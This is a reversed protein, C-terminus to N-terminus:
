KTRWSSVELVAYVLLMVSAGFRVGRSNLFTSSGFCGCQGDEAIAAHIGFGIGVIGVALVVPRWARAWVAWALVIELTSMILVICQCVGLAHVGTLQCVSIAALMDADVLKLVGAAFFVLGSLLRLCTRLTV